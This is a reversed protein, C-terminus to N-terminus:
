AVDDGDVHQELVAANNAMLMRKLSCLNDADRRTM